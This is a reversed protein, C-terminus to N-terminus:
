EPVCLSNALAAQRQKKYGAGGDPLPLQCPAYVTSAQQSKLVTTMLRTAPTNFAARFDSAAAFSALGAIPTKALALYVEHLIITPRRHSLWAITLLILKAASLLEDLLRFPRRCNGTKEAKARSLDRIAQWGKTLSCPHYM